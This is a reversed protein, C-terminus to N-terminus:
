FLWVEFRLSLHISSNDKLQQPRYYHANEHSKRIHSDRLHFKRLHLARPSSRMITPARLHSKYPYLGPPSRLIRQSNGGHAKGLWLPM